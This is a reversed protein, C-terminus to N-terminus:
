QGWIPCRQLNSPKYDFTPNQQVLNLLPLTHRHIRVTITLISLAYSKHCREVTLPGPIQRGAKPM